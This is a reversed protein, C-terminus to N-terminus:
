LLNMVPQMQEKGCTVYVNNGAASIAANISDVIPTNSLNTKNGFAKGGDTSAKFMVESNKNPSGKDTFWIVYVNNDGSVAIAAKRDALANKFEEPTTTLIAYSNYLILSPSVALSTAALILAIVATLETYSNM